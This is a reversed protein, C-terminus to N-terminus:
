TASSMVLGNGFVILPLSAGGLEKISEVTFGFTFVDSRFPTLGRERARLVEPTSPAHQLESILSLLNVLL